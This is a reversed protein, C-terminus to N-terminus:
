AKIVALSVPAWQFYKEEIKLSCRTQRPDPSHVLLVYYVNLLRPIQQGEGVLPLTLLLYMGSRDGVVFLLVGLVVVPQAPFHVGEDRFGIQYDGVVALPKVALLGVGAEDSVPEGRDDM